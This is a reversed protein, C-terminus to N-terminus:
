SLIKSMAGDILPLNQLSTRIVKLLSHSRQRDSHPRDLQTRQYALVCSSSIKLSHRLSAHLSARLNKRLQSQLM